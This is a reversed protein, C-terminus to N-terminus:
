ADLTEGKSKAGSALTNIMELMKEPKIIEFFREAGLSLRKERYYKEITKYHEQTFREGYKWIGLKEIEYEFSVRMADLENINKLYKIYEPNPHKYDERFADRYIKKALDSIDETKDVISHAIEHVATNQFERGNPLEKRDATLTINGPHLNFMKSLNKPIYTGLTRGKGGQDISNFPGEIYINDKNASSIREKIQDETLGEQRAKEQYERSSVRDSMYRRVKDIDEFDKLFQDKLRELDEPLIIQASPIVYNLTHRINYEELERLEEIFKELKKVDEIGEKTNTNSNKYRDVISILLQIKKKSKELEEKENKEREPDKNADIYAQFNEYSEYAWRQPNDFKLDSQQGNISQSYFTSLLLGLRMIKRTKYLIISFYEESIDRFLYIGEQLEKTKQLGLRESIWKLGVRFKEGSNKKFEELFDSYPDKFTDIHGKIKEFM